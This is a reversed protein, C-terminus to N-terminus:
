CILLRLWILCVLEVQYCFGLLRVGRDRREVM